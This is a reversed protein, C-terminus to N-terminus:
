CGVGLEALVYEGMKSQGRSSRANAYKSELIVDRASSHSCLYPPKPVPVGRIRSGIWAGAAALGLRVSESGREPELYVVRRNACVGADDNSLKKHAAM